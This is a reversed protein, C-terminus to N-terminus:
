MGGAPRRPFLPRFGALPGPRIVTSRESALLRAIDSRAFRWSRNSTKLRSLRAFKATGSRASDCTKLAFPTLFALAPTSLAVAVVALCACSAAFTVHYGHWRVHRPRRAHRSEHFQNDRSRHHSTERDCSDAHERLLAT